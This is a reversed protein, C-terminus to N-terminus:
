ERVETLELGDICSDITIGLAGGRVDGRAKDLTTTWTQGERGVQWCRYAHGYALLYAQGHTLLYTQGHSQQSSSHQSIHSHHGDCTECDSPVLPTHLARAFHHRM